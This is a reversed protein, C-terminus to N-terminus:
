GGVGWVLPTGCRSYCVWTWNGLVNWRSVGKLHLFYRSIMPIVERRRLTYRRLTYRRLTYRRLTYSRLIYHRLIYRRLTYRRLAYLSLFYRIMVPIVGRLRLVYRSMMPIVERRCLTYCRLADRRLGDRIMM